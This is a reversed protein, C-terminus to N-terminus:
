QVPSRPRVNSFRKASHAPVVWATASALPVTARSTASFASPMPGPSSTMVVGRVKRAEADEITVAPATGTNASTSGSLWFMVASVMRATIVSRVLATMQTWRPPMGQSMSGIMASASM